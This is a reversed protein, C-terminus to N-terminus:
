AGGVPRGVVRVLFFVAAVQLPLLVVWPVGFGVPITGLLISVGGVSLAYPIQTWVHGLHDCGSSQSSLVTTDSIPSCHDGFIAGALVGGVSALLLPESESVIMGDRMLLARTLPFAMPILIGMTGWSTGTSFAVAASIVFVITPLWRASYGPGMGEGGVLGGGEGYRIDDLSGDGGLSDPEGRGRSQPPSPGPTLPDTAGVRDGDVSRNRGGALVQALYDATYLRHDRFGYAEEGGRGELGEDTTMRSLASATWLIAIAPMVWRAGQMAADVAESWRLIRASVSMGVAVLLGVLAGYQLAVTSDAAGIVERLEVLGSRGGGWPNVGSARLADAGTRVLFYVVLGLTVGIPIVAHYWASTRGAPDDGNREDGEERESVESGDGTGGARLGAARREAVLMPGYERGFIATLPVFLLAGWVYFRYPLTAIFLEFPSVSALEPVSALGSAIYDLEVAIWTSILAVGAIPAATSDVLYALKERSIRLRDTIPRMTNGILITNAYDDFFVLLGLGYTALQGRRRNRAWPTVLGILGRMGGSRTVVGVLSGMLLTFSFVRLKGPDILTTWLHTEWTESVAVALNGGSMLLAGAFVGAVLSLVIQRTAIALVIAVVPPALSWVGYPHEIM